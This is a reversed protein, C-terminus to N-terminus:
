ADFLLPGRLESFRRVAARVDSPIAPFRVGVGPWTTSRLTDRTWDVTGEFEFEEIGALTLTVRVKSGISPTLWTAVFVGRPQKDELSAYFNAQSHETVDVELDQTFLSEIAQAGTTVDRNSPSADERQM